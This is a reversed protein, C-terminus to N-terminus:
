GVCTPIWVQQWRQRLLAHDVRTPKGLSTPLAHNTITRASGSCRSRLSLFSRVVLLAFLFLPVRLIASPADILGTLDLRIGSSIFFVAVVFGYGIAELEIQFNPHSASDRDVLGVVAGALFAGLISELGFREALATFAILLVVAFRM